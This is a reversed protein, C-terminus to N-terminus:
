FYFTGHKNFLTPGNENKDARPHLTLRLGTTKGTYLSSWKQPLDCAVYISLGM